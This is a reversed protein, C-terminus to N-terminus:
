SRARRRNTSEGSHAVRLRAAGPREAPESEDWEVERESSVRLGLASADLKRNLLWSVGVLDWAGRLGRSVITYKTQGHLRPRHSVPVEVVRFGANKLLAPIFRHLGDFPVLHGVCERKMVKPTGGTDRIGDRTFLSRLSNAIWSAIRRQKPDLRREARSGNVLDYEPLYGLLLKIDAADSQGDGDMLVCVEGTCRLLGAYIAASQGMHRPLRHAQVGDLATLADFTGDSSGDDVGIIEANPHCRQLESLVPAVNKEENYFPVVISLKVANEVGDSRRLARRPSSPPGSRTGVLRGHGGSPLM